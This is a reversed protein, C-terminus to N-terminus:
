KKVVRTFQKSENNQLRIIYIGRNLHSLDIKIPQGPIVNQKEYHSHVRGEIGIISIDVQNSKGNWTIWTHSSAPNPYANHSVPLKQQIIQTPEEISYYYEYRLYTEFQNDPYGYTWYSVNFSEISNEETYIFDVKTGFAIIWSYGEHWSLANYTVNGLHDYNTEHKNVPFYQNMDGNWLEMLLLKMLGSEHYQNSIRLLNVWVIEDKEHSESQMKGPYFEGNIAVSISLPKQSDFDYWTMESQRLWKKWQQNDNDWFHIYATSWMYNDIEFVMRLDKEWTDNAENYENYEIIEQVIGDANHFFEEMTTNLWGTWTYDQWTRKVLLNNDNYEDVARHGSELTWGTAKGSYSYFGYFLENGLPCWTYEEAYQPQWDNGDWYYAEMRIIRNQDDYGAIQKKNPHFEGDWDKQWTEIEKILNTGTHYVPYEKAVVVLNYDWGEAEFRILSDANANNRIELINDEWRYLSLMKEGSLYKEPLERFLSSTTTQKKGGKINMQQSTTPLTASILLMIILIQKM